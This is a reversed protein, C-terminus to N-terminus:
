NGVKYLRWRGEHTVPLIGLYKSVKDHKPDDANVLLYDFYGIDNRSALESYYSLNSKYPRVPNAKYTVLSTAHEAFSFNVECDKLSNAYIVGAVFPNETSIYKSDLIYNLGIVNKKPPLKDFSQQLGSLEEREVNNWTNATLLAYGGLVVLSLLLTGIKWRTDQIPAFSGLLFFILVYPLWRVSFLITNNYKDPMLLYAVLLITALGFLPASVSRGKGAIARLTGFIVFSLTTIALLLNFNSILGSIAFAAYDPRLRIAFSYIWKPAMDYGANMWNDHMSPYWFIALAVAPLAALFVTRLRINRNPSDLAILAAALISIAFWFIHSFYVLLFLLALSIHERWSLRTLGFCVGVVFLFATFGAMFPLFGWYFSQNFLLAASLPIIAPSADIRKTIYAIGLISLIILGLVTVKAAILPPLFTLSVLLWTTLTNPSLWNIVMDPQDGSLVKGVLRAQALHHPLDLLPLWDVAAFPIAILAITLVTALLFENKMLAKIRALGIARFEEVNNM